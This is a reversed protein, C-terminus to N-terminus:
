QSVEQIIVVSNWLYVSDDGANRAMNLRFKKDALTTNRYTGILPLMINSRGMESSININSQRVFRMSTGSVTENISAVYEDGAGSGAIRFEGDFTVIFRSNASKPKVTVDISINTSATGTVYGNKNINATVDNMLDYVITQLLGGPQAAVLQTVTTPAWATGNWVLVDGATPAPSTVDTLDDLKTAGTSNVTYSGIQSIYAQASLNGANSQYAVRLKITQNTSPTYTFRNVGNRAIGRATFIPTIIMAATQNPLVANTTADVFAVATDGVFQNTGGADYILSTSLDYTVGATLTWVGAAFPITGNVQSASTMDQAVNGGGSLAINLTASHYQATPSM